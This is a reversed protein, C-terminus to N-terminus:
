GVLGASGKVSSAAYRSLGNAALWVDARVGEAESLRRALRAIGRALLNYTDEVAGRGIMPKTDLAVRLASGKRLLGARQAEEISRAFVRQAADHLVLHSRFLQFTSKACLPEGAPRRLAAAWRLDYGSRAVAEEDSVGSEAQLLLLVALQSPPVSPRGVKADYLDSFDDDRFLRDSVSALQAEFSGAKLKVPYVNGVDFLSAQSGCRGIMGVM